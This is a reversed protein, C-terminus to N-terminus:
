PKSNLGTILKQDEPCIKVKIGLAVAINHTEGRKCKAEGRLVRYVLASQFGNQRSWQAVSIGGSEFLNRVDNCSLM